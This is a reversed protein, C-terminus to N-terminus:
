PFDSMSICNTLYRNKDHNALFASNFKKWNAVFSKATEALRDWFSPVKVSGEQTFWIEKGAHRFGSIYTFMKTAADGSNVVRIYDIVSMKTCFEHNGVRPQGFTILKITPYLGMQRSAYLAALAGGLSHGTVIIETVRFPVKIKNIVKELAVDFGYHIAGFRTYTMKSDLNIMWDSPEDTGRFVIWAVGNILYLCGQIGDVDFNRANPLSGDYIDKSLRAAQVIEYKTIMAVGLAM